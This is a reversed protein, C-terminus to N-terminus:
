SLDRTVHEMTSIPHMTIWVQDSEIPSIGERYKKDAYKKRGDQLLDQINQADISKSAM